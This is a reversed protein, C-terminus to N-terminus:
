PYGISFTFLAGGGRRIGLDAAVPGIRTPHVLGVGFGYRLGPFGIDDRSAWVNGAGARAVARFQGFLRRRFSV